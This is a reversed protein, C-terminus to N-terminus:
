HSARHFEGCWEDRSVVPFTAEVEGDELPILTPPYRRCFGIDDKPDAIFFSCHQCAPLCDAPIKKKVSM